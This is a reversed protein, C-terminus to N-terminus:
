SSPQPPKQAEAAAKQRALQVAPISGIVIEPNFPFLGTKRWSSVINARNISDARALQPIELFQIKDISYGAGWKTKALLHKRYSEGFPGFVGVDCPQLIHTSHSPLCLLIIKKQECFEIVARTVHSGHGDFLLMRYEGKQTKATEVDFCLKFWELCLEDDTWGRDSIAIHGEPFHKYWDKLL